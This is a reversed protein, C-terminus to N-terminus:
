LMAYENLLVAIDDGGEMIDWKEGVPLIANEVHNDFNGAPCICLHLDGFLFCEVGDLLIDFLAFKTEDSVAERMM